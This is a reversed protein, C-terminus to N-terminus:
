EGSVSEAASATDSNIRHKIVEILDRVFPTIKNFVADEPFDEPFANKYTLNKIMSLMSFADEPKLEQGFYAEVLQEYSVPEEGYFVKEADIGSYGALFASVLKKLDDDNRGTERVFKKPMEGNLLRERFHYPKFRSLLSEAMQKIEDQSHGESIYDQLQRQFHYLYELKRSDDMESLNEFISEDQYHM